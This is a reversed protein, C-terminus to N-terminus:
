REEEHIEPPPLAAAIRLAEPISDKFMAEIRMAYAKPDIRVNRRVWDSLASFYISRIVGVVLYLDTERVSIGEARKRVYAIIERDFVKSIAYEVSDRGIEAYINRFAEYNEEIWGFLVAFGEALTATEHSKRIARETETVLLEELLAYIDSFYYYFTNRNVQCDEVVDRVTIKKITKKAAIRLFSDMIAQKTFRSM